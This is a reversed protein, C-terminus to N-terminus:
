QTLLNNIDLSIPSEQCPRHYSITNLRHRRLTSCPRHPIDSGGSWLLITSRVALQINAMRNRVPRRDQLGCLSQFALVWWGAAGERTVGWRTRHGESPAPGVRPLSDMYRQGFREFPVAVQSRLWTFSLVVKGGCAGSPPFM